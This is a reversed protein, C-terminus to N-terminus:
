LVAQLRSALTATLLAFAAEGFGPDNHQLAALVALWFRTPENDQEDLMLWAVRSHTQRAWASLLTTKGFGPSASLLVLPVNTELRAILPSRPIAQVRVPPVTVKTLLFPSQSMALIRRTHKGFSPRRGRAPSACRNRFACCVTPVRATGSRQERRAVDSRFPEM